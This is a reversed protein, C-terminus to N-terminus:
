ATSSPEIVMEIAKIFTNPELFTVPETVWSEFYPCLLAEIDEIAEHEGAVWVVHLHNYISIPKDAGTMRAGVILTETRYPSFFLVKGNCKISHWGEEPGSNSCMEVIQANVLLISKHVNVNTVSVDHGGRVLLTIIDSLLHPGRCGTDSGLNFRAYLANLNM